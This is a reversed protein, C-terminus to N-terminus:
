NETPSFSPVLFEPPVTLMRDNHDAAFWAFRPAGEDRLMHVWTNVEWTLRGSDLFPQLARRQAAQFSCTTAAEMLFFGGCFVWCIQSFLSEFTHTCPAWCGPVLVRGALAAASPQLTRLRQVCGAVDKCIKVIGADLFAYFPAPTPISAGPTEPATHAGMTRTVLEAKCHMLTMFFQTDKAENRHRPLEIPHSKSERGRIAHYIGSDTISWPVLTLGPHDTLSIQAAYTEDAYLTMPLPGFSFLQKLWALRQAPPIPDAPNSVLCSVYHVTTTPPGAVAASM